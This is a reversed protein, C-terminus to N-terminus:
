NHYRPLLLLLLLTWETEIEEVDTNDDHDDYVDTEARLLLVSIANKSFFHLFFLAFKERENAHMRTLNKEVTTGSAQAAQPSTTSSACSVPNM